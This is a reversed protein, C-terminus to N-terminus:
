CSNSIFSSTTQLVQLLLVHDAPANSGFHNMCGCAGQQSSLVCIMENAGRLAELMEGGNTQKSTLLKLFHNRIVPKVERLMECLHSRALVIYASFFIKICKTDHQVAHPDSISHNQSQKFFELLKCSAPCPACENAVLSKKSEVRSELGNWTRAREKLGKQSRLFWKVM